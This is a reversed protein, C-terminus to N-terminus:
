RSSERDRAVTHDWFIRPALGHGFTFSETGIARQRPWGRAQGKKIQQVLEIGTITITAHDFHEFGLM